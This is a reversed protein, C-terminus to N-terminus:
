WRTSKKRMPRFAENEIRILKSRAEELRSQIGLSYLLAIINKKGALEAHRSELEDLCNAHEIAFRLASSALRVADMIDRCANRSVLVQDGDEEMM